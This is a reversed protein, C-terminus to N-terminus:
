CLCYRLRPQTGCECVLQCFLTFRQCISNPNSHHSKCRGHAKLTTSQAHDNKKKKWLCFSYLSFRQEMTTSQFGLGCSMLFWMKTILQNDHSSLTIPSLRQMGMTNCADKNVLNTLESNVREYGKEGWSPQWREWSQYLWSFLPLSLQMPVVSPLLFPFFSSLLFFVNGENQFCSTFRPPGVCHSFM